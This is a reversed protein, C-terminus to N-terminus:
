KAGNYIFILYRKQLTTFSISKFASLCIINGILKRPTVGRHGSPRSSQAYEREYHFYGPIENERELFETSESFQGCSTM